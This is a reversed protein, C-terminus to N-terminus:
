FVQGPSFNQLKLNTCSKTLIRKLANCHLLILKLYKETLLDIFINSVLSGVEKTRLSM